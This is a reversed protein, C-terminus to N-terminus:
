DEKRYFSLNYHDIFYINDKRHIAPFFYVEEEQKSIYHLYALEKFYISCDEKFFKWTGNNRKTISDKTFIQEFTGDSKIVLLNEAKKDYFNEYVGEIPMTNNCEDGKFNKPDFFNCGTLLITILIISLRWM